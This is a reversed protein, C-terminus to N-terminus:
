GEAKASKRKEPVRFDSVAPDDESFQLILWDDDEEPCREISAGAIMMGQSRYLSFLNKGGGTDHNKAFRKQDLKGALLDLLERTSIRIEDGKLQWGGLYSKSRKTSQNWKMSNLANEPTQYVEPLSAIVQNLLNQLSSQLGANSERAFLKLEFDHNARRTMMSSNSRIGITVVFAVSRHQRFFEEIVENMRYASWNPLENFIRSGRDCVIVGRVGEYGSDRLQNAKSKLANFLPNDDKVTTSTYSGYSSSGVGITLSPQYQVTIDVAPSKHVVHLNRITQPEARIAQIYEDFEKNFVLSSFQTARPVLLQRKRGDGRHPIPRQEAPQVIFRGTTIRDKRVRRSLEDCFRHIPNKEHLSGDSIAVIDAGFQLKGDLSNFVIDIPRGGLPPEHLVTGFRVFARLLVIEWETAVYDDSVTNLRQVWDRLCNESVFAAAEDLYRQLIRRTFLAM